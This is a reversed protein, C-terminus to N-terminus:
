NASCGWWTWTGNHLSPNFRYDDAMTNYLAPVMKGHEQQLMQELQAQVAAVVTNNYLNTRENPDACLDFLWPGTEQPLAALKQAQQRAEYVQEAPLPAFTPQADSPRPQPKPDYTGAGPDGKILKHCGLRVAGCKMGKAHLGGQNPEINYVFRTRASSVNRSLAAWNDVGDIGQLGRSALWPPTAGGTAAPVGSGEAAASLLTPLWDVAHHMATSAYGTHQLGWGHM